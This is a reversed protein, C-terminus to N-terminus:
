NRALSKRRKGESLLRFSLPLNPAECYGDTFNEFIFRAVKTKAPFNGQRDNELKKRPIKPIM